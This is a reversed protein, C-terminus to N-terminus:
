SSKPVCLSQGIQLGDCDLGANERILDEVEAGASHAIAWCTEGSEVVHAITGGSCVVPAPAGSSSGGMFWFVMILVVGIILFFPAMYRWAKRADEKLDNDTIGSSIFPQTEDGDQGVRHLNGYRAGEPGEWYSGDADQYTYTQTDADYGVRTMGEPLREEDSDYFRPM